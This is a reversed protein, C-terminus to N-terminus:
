TSHSLKTLMLNIAQALLYWTLLWPKTLMLNIASAQDTDPQRSTIPLLALYAGGRKFVACGMVLTLNLAKIAYHCRDEDCSDADCRDADCSDEDCKSEDCSNESKISVYRM